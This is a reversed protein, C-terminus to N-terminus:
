GPIRAADVDKTTPFKPFGEFAKQEQIETPPAIQTGKAEQRIM